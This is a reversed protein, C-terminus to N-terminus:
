KGGNKQFRKLTRFLKAKRNQIAIAVMCKDRLFLNAERGSSIGEQKQLTDLFPDGNADTLRAIDIIGLDMFWHAGGPIDIGILYFQVFEMDLLHCGAM